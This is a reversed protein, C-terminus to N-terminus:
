VDGDLALVANPTAAVIAHIINSSQETSFVSRPNNSALPSAQPCTTKMHENKGFVPNRGFFHGDMLVPWHRESKKNPVRQSVWM